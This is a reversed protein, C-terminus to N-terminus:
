PTEKGTGVDEDVHDELYLDQDSPEGDETTRIKTRKIVTTPQEDAAEEEKPLSKGVYALEMEAHSAEHVMVKITLASDSGSTVALQVKDCGAEMACFVARHDESLEELYVLEGQQLAGRQELAFRIMPTGKFFNVLEYQHRVGELAPDKSPALRVMVSKGSEEVVVKYPMPGRPRAKVSGGWVGRWDRMLRLVKTSGALTPIPKPTSSCALALGLTLALLPLRIRM